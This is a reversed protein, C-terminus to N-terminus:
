PSGRERGERRGHEGDRRGPQDRQAALATECLCRGSATIVENTELPVAESRGARYSMNLRAGDRSQAPASSYFSMQISEWIRVTSRSPITSPRVSNRGTEEVPWRM